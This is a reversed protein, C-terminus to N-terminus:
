RVMIVKWDRDNVIQLKRLKKLKFCRSIWRRRLVFVPIECALAATLEEYVGRGIHGEYESCVVRESHMVRKLYEEMPRKGLGDNPNDVTGIKSLFEVEDAERPTDYIRMSHAYYIKM